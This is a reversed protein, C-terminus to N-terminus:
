PVAGWVFKFTSESAVRVLHHLCVWVTSLDNLECIGRRTECCEARSCVRPLPRWRLGPCAARGPHLGAPACRRGRAGRRGAGGRPAQHRAAQAGRPRPAPLGACGRRPALRHVRGAGVRAARRWRTGADGARTFAASAQAVVQCRRVQPARRVPGPTARPRKCPWLGLMDQERTSGATLM